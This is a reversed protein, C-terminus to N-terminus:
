DTFLNSNMSRPDMFSVPTGHPVDILM